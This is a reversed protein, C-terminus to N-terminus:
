FISIVLDLDTEPIEFGALSDPDNIIYEQDAIGFPLWYGHSCYATIYRVPFIHLPFQFFPHFFSRFFQGTQVLVYGGRHAKKRILVILLLLGQLGGFVLLWINVQIPM